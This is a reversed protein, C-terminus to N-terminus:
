GTLLFDSNELSIKGKFNRHDVYAIDRSHILESRFHIRLVEPNHPPDCSSARIGQTFCTPNRSRDDDLERKYQSHTIRRKITSQVKIFLRKRRPPTEAHQSASQNM